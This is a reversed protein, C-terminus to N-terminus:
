LTVNRMAIHHSVIETGLYEAADVVSIKDRRNESLTEYLNKQREEHKSIIVVNAKERNQKIWAKKSMEFVLKHISLTNQVSSTATIADDAVGTHTLNEGMLKVGLFSADVPRKLINTNVNAQGTSSMSGERVGFSEFVSDYINDGEKMWATRSLFTSSEYDLERLRNMFVKKDKIMELVNTGLLFNEIMLVIPHISPFYKECDFMTLFLDEGRSLFDIILLQIELLADTYSAGHRFGYQGTNIYRNMKDDYGRRNGGFSEGRADIQNAGNLRRSETRDDRGFNDAHIASSKKVELLDKASLFKEKMSIKQGSILDNFKEYYDHPM